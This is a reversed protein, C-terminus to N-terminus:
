GKGVVIQKHDIAVEGSMIRMLYLGTQIGTNRFDVYQQNTQDSVRASHILKGTIDFFDISTPQEVGNADWEVQVGDSAPNPYVLFAKESTTNSGFVVSQMPSYRKRGDLDIMNLRYFVQLRSDRGNYVQYDTFAYNKSEISFGAAKAEGINFWHQKDYSRQIQFHSTNIENVTTWKILADAEGSKQATFAILDLPLPGNVPAMDYEPAFGSGPVDIAFTHGLDNDSELEPVDGEVYISLQDCITCAVTSPIISLTCITIWDGVVWDDPTPITLQNMFYNKVLTNGDNSPIASPVAQAISYQGAAPNEGPDPCFGPGNNASLVNVNTIGTSAAWKLSFKMGGIINDIFEETDPDCMSVSPVVSNIARARVIARNTAAGPMDTVQVEFQGPIIQAHNMVCFGLSLFLLTFIKKM